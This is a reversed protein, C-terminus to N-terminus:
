AVVEQGVRLDVVDAGVRVVRGSCEGGFETALQPAQANPDPITGLALLVDIFNLGAAQVEIEVEDAKPPRREVARLALGELSGRRGLELRFAREAAPASVEAPATAPQVGDGARELRAVYRRERRLAVQDEATQAGLERVLAPIEQEPTRSLDIRTCELEPHEVTSTRALGWLPAQFAGLATLPDSSPADGALVHCGATVLWLRLNQPVEGRLLAQMLYLVSSSACAQARSPAAQDSPLRQLLELSWLHVVNAFRRGTLLHRYGDPQLPDLELHDADVVRFAAAPVVRVVREGRQELARILTESVQSRDAFVLWPGTPGDHPEGLPQEQWALEYLWSDVLEADERPLGLRESTLSLVEAVLQGDSDYLWLDASARQASPNETAHVVAHCWMREPLPGYVRMRDVRVPLWMERQTSPATDPRAATLAQLCADLVAPHWGDEDTSGVGDPRRIEALAEHDGRHVSEVGRFSPGYELGFGRLFEYHEQADRHGTCRELVAERELTTSRKTSARVYGRAHLVWAGQDSDKSARSAVRFSGADAADLCFVCQLTTTQGESLALMQEFEVAELELGDSEWLEAAAARALDLYAAAPVVCLGGVQHDRLFAHQELSLSSQWIFTGSDLSSEVRLGLLPHSSRELMPWAPEATAGLQASPPLEFREHQWPYAPLECPRREPESTEFVAQWKVSVGRSHLDALSHLLSAKEPQERRLSGLACAERRTESICQEISPLLIPHPSVELFVCHESQLLTQVADAFRVPNRLNDFWYSADFPGQERHQGTVTSVIPVSVERSTVSALERRLDEALPDVEPSHSAVDVKIWRCFVQDREFARMLTELAAREGSIVTSRPSNSAAISVRDAMDGIYARTAEAGLELLVMAGRGSVRRLLASRRCIIRAADDLTLAGAVYAAAVEGMSHGVVASPEVGWERWLEALAVQIAFLCPQICDIQELRTAETGLLQGRLSWDVFPRFARECAELSVRFSPVGAMLQRAMGVWQSGQGPFVFVVKPEAMVKGFGALRPETASSALRGALEAHSAGVVALRWDFHQRRLAATWCLHELPVAAGQGELWTAFQEARARLAGESRASLVLPYALSASPEVETTARATAKSRPAEELVVHANTGSWGFSSVGACRAADGRPWPTATTPVFFPTGEFTIHPNLREFHLNPPITEYKLALVAKILGAIGAAGELHGVNSKVAGLACRGRHAAGLVESLAEVEMPDGLATGTGHTEVLGISGADVGARQLAERVVAKQAEANPAALGVSTGDQNVASGRVVAWIPDADRLADSLRKLVVVGCGEGTVVGDAGADFVRCRGSASGTGMRSTALFFAPSLRLNVGGALALDTTRERLSQCALHVAVLSSSCATDVSIAPGRFDFTFAVRGSLVSHATGTGSYADVLSPDGIQMLFYDSSQSHVGAFVGTRSGGLRGVDLGADELAEWCVELMLRQQPDMCQAERPSVGFFQADFDFVDSLFGGGISSPGGPNLKRLTAEFRQVDWRDAPLPRVTDQGDRLVRWFGSPGSGGGPMRCGVGIIAIPERQRQEAADLEGRLERLQVFARELLAREPAAPATM